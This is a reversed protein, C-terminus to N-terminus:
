KNIRLVDIINLTKLRALAALISVSLVSMTSFFIVFLTSIEISVHFKDLLYVQGEMKIIGQRSIISALLWGSGLGCIIGFAGLLMFKTYYIQYIKRFELGISRLIAIKKQDENISTVTSSITSFSAIIILFFLVIGIVWKELKLLSFINGNYNIWSFVQYRLGLDREWKAAIKKANELKDTLIKVELLNYNGIGLSKKSILLAQEKTVFINKMDYEYMGTRFTGVVRLPLQHLSSLSKNKNLGALIYLTDGIAVKNSEALQKGIVIDNSNELIHSGDVIIEQYAIPLDNREYEISRYNVGKLNSGISLMGQGNIVAQSSVYDAENKLYDEIHLIDLEQLDNIGPKFFYIHANFSLISDKLAREYGEFLMLTCTLVSVSLLLSLFFFVM